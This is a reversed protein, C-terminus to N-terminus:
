WGSSREDAAIELTTNWDGAGPWCAANGLFGWVRACALAICAAACSRPWTGTCGRPRASACGGETTAAALEVAFGRATM